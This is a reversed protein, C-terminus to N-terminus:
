RENVNGENLVLQKSKGDNEIPLNNWLLQLQFITSM